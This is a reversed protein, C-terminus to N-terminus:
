RYPTSVIETKIVSHKTLGHMKITLMSICGKRTENSTVIQKYLDLVCIDCKERISSHNILHSILVNTKLIEFQSKDTM